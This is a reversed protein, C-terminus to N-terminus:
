YKKDEIVEYLSEKFQNEDTNNYFPVGILRYKKTKRHTNFELIKDKYKETVEKLFKEKWKDHEKLHKSKPEIFIPYSM